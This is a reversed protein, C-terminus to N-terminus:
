YIRWEEDRIDYDKMDKFEVRFLYKYIMGDEEEIKNFFYTNDFGNKNNYYEGLLNVYREIKNDIIYDNFYELYGSFKKNYPSLNKEFEDRTGYFIWEECSNIFFEVKIKEVKGDFCLTYEDNDNLRIPNYPEYECELFENRTGSYTIFKIDEKIDTM